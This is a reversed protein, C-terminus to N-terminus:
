LAPGPQQDRREAAAGGGAQAPRGAGWGSGAARGEAGRESGARQRPGRGAGPLEEEASREGGGPRPQRGGEPSGHRIPPGEAAQTAGGGATSSRQRSKFDILPFTLFPACSPKFPKSVVSNILLCM